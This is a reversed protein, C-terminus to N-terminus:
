LPQSFTLFHGNLDSVEFERVGHDLDEPPIFIRLGKASLEEYLADVNAVTVVVHCPRIKRSTDERESFHITVGGRGVEAYYPPDGVTWETHFGLKGTYYEITEAVNDVSLVPSSRIFDVSRETM